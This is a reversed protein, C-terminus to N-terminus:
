FFELDGLTLDWSDLRRPDQTSYSDLTRVAFDIGQKPVTRFGWDELARRHFCGKHFYTILYDARVCAKIENLLDSALKDDPKATLLECLVVEKLGYRTNTRFIAAGQLRGEHEIVVSWYPITPHRGYRWSLYDWSRHTRIRDLRGRTREDQQLLQELEPRSELLQAVSVPKCKFFEPSSYRRSSEKGMRRRVLGVAFSSHNLVKILPRITAVHQWGLKLYGPLVDQNPTNFIFDVGDQQAASLVQKTLNSFIGMRRYAPHTATDVARAAKIRRSGCEFEWRMFARMGILESSPDWALLVYSEGFPNLMHKWQWLVPTRQLGAPEGLTKRLLELVQEEDAPQYNRVVYEATIQAM